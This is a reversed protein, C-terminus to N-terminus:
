KGRKDGGGGHMKDRLRSMIELTQSLQQSSRDAMTKGMLTIADTLSKLGAVVTPNAQQSPVQRGGVVGDLWTSDIAPLEDVAQGRKRRPAPQPVVGRAHVRAPHV